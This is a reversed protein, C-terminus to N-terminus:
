HCFHIKQCVNRAVKTETEIINLVQGCSQVVIFECLVIGPVDEPGGAIGVCAAGMSTKVIVSCTLYKILLNVSGKCIDCKLPFNLSLTINSSITTEGAAKLTVNNTSTAAVTKSCVRTALSLQKKYPGNKFTSRVLQVRQPQHSPLM